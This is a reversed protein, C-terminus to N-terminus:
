AETVEPKRTSVVQAPVGVSVTYAAVSRTLVAGAGAVSGHGMVVGGLITVNGGLWVDAELRVGGDAQIGQERMPIDLQDIHYSGGDVIFCRQGLICDPGIDVPCDNTSQVITQANLGCNDGISITGNKCSLMVDNSLIVNDGLRISIDAAGHRGDLICGESIIVSSGLCIKSPQRLVIGSAFMCGKGCQAFLRPWFIK